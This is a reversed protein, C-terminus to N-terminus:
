WRRTTVANTNDIRHGLWMVMTKHHSCQYQWDRHGLWMVMTKAADTIATRVVDGNSNHWDETRVVDGDDQPPQM